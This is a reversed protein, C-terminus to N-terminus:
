WEAGAGLGPCATPPCVKRGESVTGEAESGERSLEPSKPNAGRRLLGLPTPSHTQGPPHASGAAEAGMECISFCASHTLQGRVGSLVPDTVQVKTPEEWQTCQREPQTREQGQGTGQPLPLLWSSKISDWQVAAQPWM